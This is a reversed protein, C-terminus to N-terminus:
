IITSFSTGQRVSTTSRTTNPPEQPNIQIRVRPGSESKIGKQLKVVSVIPKKWKKNFCELAWLLTSYGSKAFSEVPPFAFTQMAKRIVHFELYDTGLVGIAAFNHGGVKSPPPLSKWNLFLHNSNYSKYTKTNVILQPPVVLITLEKAAL